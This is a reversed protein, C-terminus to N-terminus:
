AEEDEKMTNKDQENGGITNQNIDTYAVILEDGGEVPTYGLQYRAENRTIIGSQVLTNLYNAQAQKDTKIIDEEIIDIYYNSQDDPMILKRNIEQELMEVYPALTNVVFQLQAQEVSNYSTKSLDGLLVPHLNFWRAVEQVNFIRTEILQADKSNSSVPSFKMGGELVALGSGNGVQSESWASRISQRQDKTLRPADTSLIGQVTMGSGFYESAAKEANGSLKITNTAFSLISRGEVGNSSHMLIHLVNIPEILSKSIRPMQYFLKRTAPNWVISCDKFPIYELTLPQGKRDRHIYAFGNGNLLVDKIMNKVLMFRTLLCKDFLHNVYDAGDQLEDDTKKINWSMQAVGNSILNVAAFFPSQSLAGYENLSLLKNLLGVGQNVQECADLNTEKHPAENNRKEKRNFLGM